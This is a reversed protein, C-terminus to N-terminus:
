QTKRGLRKKKLEKLDDKLSKYWKEYSKAAHEWSFDESLANSVLKRWVKKHRFVCNAEVLAAFLSWADKKEFSFGNGKETVPNFDQVIDSLGGTRRVLPVAGFRLAELAVIGGPEFLSPILVVDVGSFVRRPLKFDSFLHASVNKPFREQLKQLSQRVKEDGGGVSVFQVDKKEEILKPLAELLMTWGKQSALRGVFGFLIVNPDVPLKFKKQLDAKNEARASVFNRSTYNKKILADKSPDFEKNDIGNLIGTLKGKADLLVELLGESYEETLIEKAHTPSVTSIADAFKIGRMLANQDAIKPDLISRLPEIGLDREGEKVYKFDRSGQYKFNHITLSIPVDKLVDAYRPDRRAMEILYAGHWDHCHIVDPWWVDKNKKRAEAQLLLWELCGKSLLAFRTPDDKYGFVNARLEYYERNELFYVPADKKGPTYSLVNCILKNVGDGVPVPMQMAEQRLTVKKDKESGIKMVGYKATFVRVDHGRKRLARPLFYMVQSLGGVTVYPAVEASLHLIKMLSM